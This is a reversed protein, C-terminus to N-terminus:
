GPPRSPRQSGYLWDQAVDDLNTGSVKEVLVIFEEVTGNGGRRETTWARLAAFFHEDGVASRLAQLAMGGRTYVAQDLVGDVGPNGPPVRWYSSGAPNAQYNRDALQKASPGGHRESYLWEAYTAFGENLWIDRWRKVSVSDGFWQHSLEHVVVTIDDTSGSFFVPAYVPRTQNELAFYMDTADPVVGGLQGFPYPGFIQSLFGVIEPTREVAARAAAATAPDLGADYAALYPGQPTDRRVLDYHGVAIFALYPAMPATEQWRWRQWGPEAPEPGGLLAGNSIAQVGSPVTATVAVSAKDAPHDNSPYWWAAIEPEGVAVVGDPTRVWPPAPDASSKITSPVGAYTVRVAMSRGTPVPQAPTIQLEGDQQHITAPHGDVEVATAALKLDVNFRSLDETARATITTDGDLQDTAPDYHVQIDYHIVDYGGNGARPYYSDGIGDSGPVPHAVAPEHPAPAPAPAKGGQPPLVLVLGVIIVALLALGVVILARIRM